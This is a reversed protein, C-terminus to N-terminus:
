IFDLDDSYKEKCYPEFTSKYHKYHASNKHGELAEDNEWSEIVVFKAPNDKMQFIDYLLCGVENKSPEVMTKLLEKMENVCDDKAIFTVQKTIKM